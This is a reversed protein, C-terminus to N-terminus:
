KQNRGASKQKASSIDKTLQTLKKQLVDIQKQSNKVVDLSVQRMKNEIDKDLKHTNKLIHNLMAKKDKAKIQGKAILADVIKEAKEKTLTAFGAGALIFKELIEFM